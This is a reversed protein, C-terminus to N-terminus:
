SKKVYIQSGLLYESKSYSAGATYGYSLSPIAGQTKLSSLFSPTTNDEGDFNIPASSIGLSGVYFADTTIEAVVQHQVAVTFLGPLALVDWGYTGNVSNDGYGLNTETGLQYLKNIIWSSSKSSDYLGGRASTCNSVDTPRCGNPAVVWTSSM